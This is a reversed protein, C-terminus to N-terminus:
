EETLNLDWVIQQGNERVLVGGNEGDRISQAIEMREDDSIGIELDEEGVLAQLEDIEAQIDEMDDQPM